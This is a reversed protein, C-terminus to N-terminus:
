PADDDEEDGSPPPPPTQNPAGGVPTIQPVQGQGDPLPPLGRLARAEDVLRIGAQVERVLMESETTIDGRVTQDTDFAPYVRAGAPFLDPDLKAAAEIRELRPGLGYRLWRDEEHEPSLPRDSRQVGLLSPTVNFIRAADEVSLAMSEIFQSDRQTLAIPKPQAGGGAVPTKGSNRPGGYTEHWLESFEEAQEPTVEPPLSLVFAQEAGNEYFARERVTKAIAAGITDAFLQVPSPAVMLAGGGHGRIHLLRDPGVDAIRGQRDARGTPDVFGGGVIVDFTRERPVVQDPHL